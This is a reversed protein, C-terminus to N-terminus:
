VVSRATGFHRRPTRHWAGAGSLCPCAGSGTAVSYRPGAVAPSGRVLRPEMREAVSGRHSGTDTRTRSGQTTQGSLDKMMARVLQPELVPLVANLLEDSVDGERPVGIRRAWIHHGSAVDILQFNARVGGATAQLSGELMYWVGFRSQVADLDIASDKMAFSAARSIISLFPVRTLVTTLMEVLGDAAGQLDPSDGFVQMPLIVM